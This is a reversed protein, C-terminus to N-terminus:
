YVRDTRFIICPWTVAIVVIKIINCSSKRDTSILYGNIVKDVAYGCDKQENNNVCKYVNGCFM